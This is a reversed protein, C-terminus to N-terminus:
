TKPLRLRALLRPIEPTRAKGCLRSKSGIRFGGKASRGRLSQAAWWANRAHKPLHPPRKWGEYGFRSSRRLLGAPAWLALLQKRILELLLIEHKPGIHGEHITNRYATTEWIAGCLEQVDGPVNEALEIVKAMATKDVVRKGPDVTTTGIPIVSDPM